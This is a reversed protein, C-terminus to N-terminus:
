TVSGLKVECPETVRLVHHRVIAYVLCIPFAIFLMVLNHRYADSVFFWVFASQTLTGLFIAALFPIVPALGVFAGLILVRFRVRDQVASRRYNICFATLGGACYLVVGLGLVLRVWAPLEQVVPPNYIQAYLRPTAWAAIMLAPLWVIAWPWKGNFLPRPLLAFFTFCLPLLMLHSLQPIWLLSALLTPLGRWVATMEADPFLPATGISALLWAAIMKVPTKTGFFIMAFALSLLSGQVYRKRELPFSPDSPHREM